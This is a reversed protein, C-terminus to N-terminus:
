KVARGSNKLTNRLLLIGTGPKQWQKMLIIHRPDTPRFFSGLLIDEDGDQDMDGSTITLWRGREAHAFTRPQFQLNGQNEFFIFSENPSHSFDPFHAITAIDDDGDQDFDRVITQTAGHMPYFWAEKFRFNGDNRFIRLGHYPKLVISYDANDGNTYILDDDGDRDIDAMEVSSSGYVPPFRLITEKRFQGNRQNYYIAIQEDGQTLLAIIDPWQDKNVDKIIVTRAGPLSDLLHETYGSATQEHWTLKGLHHGFQSVVVDQRGDRNLDALTANVPRQLKTLVPTPATTPKMSWHNWVGAQRDNPNLVGVTLLNASGNNNFHIDTIPSTLRVSDLRNLNHDLAFLNSRGDGAWIRHSVSDYRLLTVFADIASKSPQVDFLPLKVSVPQHTPQNPLTAPATTVYYDVIKQWDAPHLTPTEPFTQANMLRMMEDTNSIRVYETMANDAQGMRLAMQPLVGRKWTEKDLLSPDPYQHCRSCYSQSLQKGTLQTELPLARSNTAATESSSSQCSVIALSSIVIASALRLSFM